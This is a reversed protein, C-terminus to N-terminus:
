IRIVYNQFAYANPVTINFTGDSLRTMKLKPNLSFIERVRSVTMRTVTPPDSAYTRYNEEAQDAVDFILDTLKGRRVPGTPLGGAKVIAGDRHGM